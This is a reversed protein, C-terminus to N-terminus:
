QEAIYLPLLPKILDQRRNLNSYLNYIEELNSDDGQKTLFQIRDLDRLTVKKFADKLMLIYPQNSKKTKNNRLNKVAINIAEDYNGYNLAKQTTKVSSCSLSTIILLFMPLKLKM